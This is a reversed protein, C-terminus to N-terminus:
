KNVPLENLKKVPDKNLQLLTSKTIKSLVLNDKDKKSVISQRDGATQTPNVQSASEWIHDVDIATSKRSHSIKSKVGIKSPVKSGIQNNFEKLRKSNIKKPDSDVGLAKELDDNPEKKDDAREPSLSKEKRPSPSAKEEKEEDDEDELSEYEEQRDEEFM